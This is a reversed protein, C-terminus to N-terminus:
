ESLFVDAGIYQRQRTIEAVVLPATFIRSYAHRISPTFHDLHSSMKFLRLPTFNTGGIIDSAVM